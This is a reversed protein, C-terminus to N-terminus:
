HQDKERLKLQQKRRKLNERLARAERAKRELKRLPESEAKESKEPAKLNTMKLTEGAKGLAYGQPM